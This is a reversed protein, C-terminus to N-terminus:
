EAGFDQEGELLRLACSRTPGNLANQLFIEGYPTM